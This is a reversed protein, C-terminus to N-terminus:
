EKIFYLYGDRKDEDAPETDLILIKVLGSLTTGSAPNVTGYPIANITLYKDDSNIMNNVNIQNGYQVISTGPPGQISEIEGLNDYVKVNNEDVPIFVYNQDYVIEAGEEKSTKVLIGDSYPRNAIPYKAELLDLIDNPLGLEEEEEYVDYVDAIHFASGSQGDPIDFTSTGGKTTTIVVTTKNDSHSNTISIISNGNQGDRGSAGKINCQSIFETGNYRYVQYTTTDLYMDGVQLNTNPMEFGCYWKTSNGNDGKIGQLGQLGQPGQLPFQGINFWEDSNVYIYLDYSTQSNEPAYLYATGYEVNETPLNDLDDVVGVIKIGYQMANINDKNALVQEELNRLIKGNLTIM